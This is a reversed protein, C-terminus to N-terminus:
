PCEYGGGSVVSKLRQAKPVGNPARIHREHTLQTLLHGHVPSALRGGRHRGVGRRGKDGVLPM